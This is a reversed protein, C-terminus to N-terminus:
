PSCKEERGKIIYRAIFVGIYIMITKVIMSQSEKNCIYSKLRIERKGEKCELRSNM